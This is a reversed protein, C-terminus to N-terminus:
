EDDNETPAPAIAKLTAGAVMMLVSVLIMIRGVWPPPGGQPEYGSLANELSAGCSGAFLVMGLMFIAFGQWLLFRAARQM